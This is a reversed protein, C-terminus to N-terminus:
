LINASQSRTMVSFPIDPHIDVPSSMDISKAKM